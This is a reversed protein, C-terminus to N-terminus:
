KPHTVKVTDGQDDEDDVIEFVPEDDDWRMVKPNGTNAM